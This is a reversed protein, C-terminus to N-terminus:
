LVRAVAIVGIRSAGAARLARACEAVTAGTTVVDDVIVVHRGAVASSGAFAGAVNGRREAASLDSQAATARLRVLWRARVPVGVREGIREALLLAQNFGRERERRRALPVPVLVDPRDARAACHDVVLDGLPGALSRRGGFKLAHVAERVSDGYAAAAHAYDFPPPMEACAACRPRTASPMPVGCCDCFPPTLREFSAWCAACLPDRRGPGLRTACLPCVAPFVLDLAATVLARM